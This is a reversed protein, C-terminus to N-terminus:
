TLKWMVGDRDALGSAEMRALAAYVRRMAQAYTVNPERGSVYAAVEYGRMPGGRLGETILRRLERRKFM